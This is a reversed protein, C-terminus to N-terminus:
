RPQPDGSAPRVESLELASRHEVSRGSIPDVFELSRALLQLPRTYDDPAEPHLVPYFPDHVIGIGLSALHVRLQHTKGTHPSLRYLGRQTNGRQGADHEWSRLLEIRTEANAAGPLEQTLLYSRSKHLRSRVTGPLALDTRVAAVAEYIKRVQRREFLLQYAGRTQPNAAFLLVGATMRDLRHIPVLDPLDLLLRLRVLASEAVYRGGPTTPLFHPKDVVVLHEDQHLVALEVPLRDEVPLERYYWLFTHEGLRTHETLPVGGVGQVEGRRFREAIGEPDVHGFRDLVYELATAWPGEAPLRLRTANVGNRVPLPSEM